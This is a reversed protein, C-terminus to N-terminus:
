NAESEFLESDGSSLCFMMYAKSMDAVACALTSGKRWLLLTRGNADTQSYLNTKLLEAKVEPTLTPGDGSEVADWGTQWLYMKSYGNVYLVEAIAGGPYEELVGGLLTCHSHLEPVLVPFDTKGSFFARVV